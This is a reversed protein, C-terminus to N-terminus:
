LLAVGLLGVEAPASISPGQESTERCRSGAAVCVGLNAPDECHGVEIRVGSQSNSGFEKGEIGLGIVGRVPPYPLVEMASLRSNLFTVILHGNLRKTAGDASVRLVRCGIQACSLQQKRETIRLTRHGQRLLAKCLSAV